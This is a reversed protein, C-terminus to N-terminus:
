KEHTFTMRQSEVGELTNLEALLSSVETEDGMEVIILGNGHGAEHLGLRTKIATGHSTLIKQVDMAKEQRDSVHIGILHHDDRIMM